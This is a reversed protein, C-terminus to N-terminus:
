DSSRAKTHLSAMSTFGDGARSKPGAADQNRRSHAPAILYACRQAGALIHDTREVSVGSGLLSRFLSLEERCLGQCSKAAVCIPCHNERLMLSGEPGTVCEAMYGQERRIQALARVRGALSTDGCGRIRERYARLQTRTREALLRDLGEEGFAARVAAIIELTLEAHSQPFRAAARETLRWVQVPRGVPRRQDIFGALGEQSFGYLHQRVAMATVGLRRALQAATQPGKSKLLYLIRDATRADREM